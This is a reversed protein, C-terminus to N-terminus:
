DHRLAEMPEVGAARAAPLWGAVLAVAILVGAAGVLSAPDAPQLGYLMSKVVKGLALAVALGSVVGILALWGAERLVMGRVQQRKAGLALRIGIENTRQAVTYAMIGYIGVMALSLALLAFGSTLSAFIIEQQLSEEMQEKMTRINMLPLDPDLRQVAATLAPVMSEPKLPTSVIFTLGDSRDLQRYLDFHLGPPDRRMSDYHTDACVGIIEEWVQEKDDPSSQTFRRGIPNQGPFFKRALTQNIVSVKASKETDHANFGRGVLIPIKMERFFDNGVDALDPYRDHDPLDAFKGAPVGEPTFGSNRSGGALLAVDSSTVGDVGPVSRLQEELRTLFAIDKPPEYRKAPLSIDFQLLHDTRFGPDVANLKVLTRLFLAASVVLLTSLAVQFAVILKGSWAKRRRSATHAGQKLAAGVENRTAAWAPFIGFAIGTGITIVATFAFIKWSFPVSMPTGGWGNAVLNPLVSRGAYGLLLGLAGGVCSILLSEALVQRLIRWRSAGLALRVSMERQRAAARALMLNAMNACALVLVTGVMGLLIYLPDKYFNTMQHLGKSGDEVELRPLTDGKAIEMTSQVAARLVTDLSARASEDSVGPKARAMVQVWWLDTNTLLGESMGMSGHVAQSMSMPMFLDPSIQVSEAGTFGPPTVGVITMPNTNVRITKGLVTPSRGFARKWFGDSIVLVAGTGPAGDDSPLIGRGLQPRVQMQEFFNGSVSAARVPVANGDVTANARDLNKFAFIPEMAQNHLKLQQYVPYSFVDYRMRGNERTNNGWENHIAVKEDGSVTLLRLQEPHPVALREFLLENAVSFISTNAGIALALSGIAVSAFGPSKKLLRLAYRLDSWLEDWWRLGLRQRIDDKHTAVWGFELRARRAAEEATFGERMLDAARAELHFRIEEEMGAELRERRLVSRLWSQVRALYAM